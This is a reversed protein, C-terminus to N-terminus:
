VHQAPAHHAACAARARSPSCTSRPLTPPMGQVYLKTAMTATDGCECNVFSEPMAAKVATPFSIEPLTTELLTLVHGYLAISSTQCAASCTGSPGMIIPLADRVAFVLADLDANGGDAILTRLQAFLEVHEPSAWDWQDSCFCTLSETMIPTLNLDEGLATAFADVFSSSPSTGACTIAQIRPIMDAFSDITPSGGFASEAVNLIDSM